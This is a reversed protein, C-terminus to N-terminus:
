QKTGNIKVNYDTGKIGLKLRGYSWLWEFDCVHKYWRKQDCVCLFDSGAIIDMLISDGQIHVYLLIYIYIYITYQGSLTFHRSAGWIENNDYSGKVEM